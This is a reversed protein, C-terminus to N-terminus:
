PTSDPKAHHQRLYERFQDIRHSHIIPGAWFRGEPWTTGCYCRDMDILRTLEDFVAPFESLWQRDTHMEQRMKRAADADLALRPAIKRAIWELIAM